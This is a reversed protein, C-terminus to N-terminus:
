RRHMLPKAPPAALGLEHFVARVQGRQSHKFRVSTESAATEQLAIGAVLLARKTEHVESEFTTWSYTLWLNRWRLYDAAFVGSLTLTATALATTASQTVVGVVSAPVAVAATLALVGTRNLRVSRFVLM